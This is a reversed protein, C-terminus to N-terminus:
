AIGESTASLKRFIRALVIMAVVALALEAAPQACVLGYLPWVANLIFLAPIELVIKRLFAFLLAKGGMGCAQFIGVALFDMCLFPQALCLCQLFRSGYFIVNENEMFLRILGGAGILYGATVTVMFLMSVKLAVLIAGKM